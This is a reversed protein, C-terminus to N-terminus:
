VYTPADVSHTLRFFFTRLVGRDLEVRNWLGLKDYIVLLYNTLYWNVMPTFRWFKGGQLTGSNLDIDSFRAVIEV